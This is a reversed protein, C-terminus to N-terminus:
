WMLAEMPLMGMSVKRRVKKCDSCFSSRSAALGELPAGCQDCRRIHDECAVRLEPALGKWILMTAFHKHKPDEVCFAWVRGSGDHIEGCVRLNDCTLCSAM